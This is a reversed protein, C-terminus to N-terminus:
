EAVILKKLRLLIAFEIKLKSLGHCTNELQKPCQLVTLMTQKLVILVWPATGYHLFFLHKYFLTNALHENALLVFRSNLSVSSGFNLAFNYSIAVNFSRTLSTIWNVQYILIHESAQSNGRVRVCQECSWECWVFFWTLSEQNDIKM